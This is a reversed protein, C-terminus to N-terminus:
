EHLQTSWQLVGVLWCRSIEKGLLGMGKGAQPIIKAQPRRPPAFPLAPKRDWVERSPESGWTEPSPDDLSNDEQEERATGPPLPDPSWCLPKTYQSGNRRTKLGVESGKLLGSSRQLKSPSVTRWRQPQRRCSRPVYCVERSQQALQWEEKEWLKIPSKCPM